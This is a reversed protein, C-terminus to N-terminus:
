LIGDKRSSSWASPSPRDVADYVQRLGAAFAETTFRGANAPGAAALRSRLAADGAIRSLCDALAAADGPPFLLADEGEHVTDELGSVRSAVVPVGFSQAELQGLGHAEWHSPLVFCDLCRYFRNMWDIQGLMRGRGELGLERIRAEVKRRDDGDGAILFFVPLRPAILAVAALFEQWGKNQVLRAAFGVVFAGTPVSEARRISERDAPEGPRPRVPIPNLVVVVREGARPLLELLRERPHESVCVFRDVRRWALRLFARFLVMELYPESERGVVRGHEHFVLAANPFFFLKLLFGFVQARFLHCHLIGISRERVIRRLALLPRLSFRGSSPDVMANPHVVRAEGKVHRLAYLHMDHDAANEEFYGKLVSQAGGLGLSDIVHLVRHASM